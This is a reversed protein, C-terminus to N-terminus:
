FSSGVSKLVVGQGIKRQNRRTLELKVIESQNDPNYSLYIPYEQVLQAVLYEMMSRGFNNSVITNYQM